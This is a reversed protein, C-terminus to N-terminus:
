WWVLDFCRYFSQVTTCQGTSSNRLQLAMVFQWKYCLEGWGNSTWLCKDFSLLVLCLLAYYFYCFDVVCILGSFVAHIHWLDALRLATTKSQVWLKVARCLCILIKLCSTVPWIRYVVVCTHLSIGDQETTVSQCHFRLILLVLCYIAVIGVSFHHKCTCVQICPRIM